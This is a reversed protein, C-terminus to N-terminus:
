RLLNIDGHIVLTEGSILVVSAAYVYVDGPALEGNITGDWHLDDDLNPLFDKREYVLGGWRNFVQFSEISVV